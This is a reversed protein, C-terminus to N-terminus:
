RVQTLKLLLPCSSLVYRKVFLELVERGGAGRRGCRWCRGRRRRRRPRRPRRPRRWSQRLRRSRRLRRWPRTRRTRTRRRREAEVAALVVEMPDEDDSPADMPDEDDSTADMPDECKKAKVCSPRPGRLSPAKGFETLKGDRKLEQYRPEAEFLGVIKEYKMPKLMDIWGTRRIPSHAYAFVITNKSRPVDYYAAYQLQDCLYEWGLWCKITLVAARHAKNEYRKSESM